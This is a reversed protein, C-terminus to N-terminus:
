EKLLIKYVHIAIVLTCISKLQGILAIWELSDPDSSAMNPLRKLVETNEINFEDQNDTLVRKSDRTYLSM